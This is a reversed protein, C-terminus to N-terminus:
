LALRDRQLGRTRTGDSGGNVRLAYKEEEVTVSELAANIRVEITDDSNVIVKPVLGQVLRRQRVGEVSEIEGYVREIHARVADERLASAVRDKRDRLENLKIGLQSIETEARKKRKDLEDVLILLKRANEPTKEDLNVLDMLSAASCGDRVKEQDSLAKKVEAIEEDVVYLKQNKDRWVNNLLKSLQGNKSILQRVVRLVEKELDERPISIKHLDCVYYSYQGSKAAKGHFPQGDPTELVGSLLYTRPRKPEFKKASRELFKCAKSFIDESVFPKHGYEWKVFGHEDQLNPFQNWTDQFFSYGVYHSRRLLRKLSEYDFDKGGKKKPPIKYGNKDISEKTFYIKNKIGKNKCFNITEKLNGHNCFDEFIRKVYKAEQPNTAYFCTRHPDPDLGLIPYTSKDKGNNVMAERAKKTIKESLELSYEAAMMNKIAFSIRSGRDMLDIEGGDLEFIKVGSESCSNVFIKNEIDDRGLRDVKEIVIFDVRKSKVASILEAYGLRKHLHKKTGSVVDEIIKELNYQTGTRLTQNECWRVLMNRQQELSGHLVQGQALSSVRVYGYGTLKHQEKRMVEIGRQDKKV